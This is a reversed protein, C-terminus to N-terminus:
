EETEEKSRKSTRRKRATSSPKDANQTVGRAANVAALYQAGHEPCCAVDQWRFVGTVFGQTHCAEYEKGCIKCKKMGTAM